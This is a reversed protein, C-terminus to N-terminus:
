RRGDTQEGTLAALREVQVHHREIRRAHLDGDANALKSRRHAREVDPVPEGPALGFHHFQHKEAIAIAVDAQRESGGRGRDLLVERVDEVLDADVGARLKDRAEGLRCGNSTSRVAAPGRTSNVEREGREREIHWAGATRGVYWMQGWRVTGDDRPERLNVFFM